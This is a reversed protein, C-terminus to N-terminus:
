KFNNLFPLEEATLQNKLPRKYYMCFTIAVPCCSLAVLKDTEQLSNVRVKPYVFERVCWLYGLTM